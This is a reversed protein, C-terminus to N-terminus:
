VSENPLQTTESYQIYLYKVKLGSKSLVTNRDIRKKKKM